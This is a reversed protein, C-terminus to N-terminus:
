VNASHGIFIDLGLSTFSLFQFCVHYSFMPEFVSSKRATKYTFSSASVRDDETWESSEELNTFGDEIDHYHSIFIYDNQLEILITAVLSPSVSQFGMGSAECPPRKLFSSPNNSSLAKSFYASSYSYLNAQNSDATGYETKFYQTASM